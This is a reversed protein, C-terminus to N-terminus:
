KQLSSQEFSECYVFAPISLVTLKWSSHVFGFEELNEPNYIVLPKLFTGVCRKM